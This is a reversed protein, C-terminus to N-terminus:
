DTQIHKEEKIIEQIRSLIELSESTAINKSSLKRILGVRLRQLYNKKIKNKDSLATKYFYDKSGNDLSVGSCNLVLRSLDEGCDADNLLAPISGSKKSFEIFKKFIKQTKEGLFMEENMDSVISDILDYDLNMLCYLFEEECFYSIGSSIFNKSSFNKPYSPSTKLLNLDISFIKSLESQYFDKVVSDKIKETKGFLERANKNKANLNESKKNMTKFLFLMMDQKNKLIKKFEEPNKLLLSDPDDGKPMFVVSPFFNSEISVDLARLSAKFGADDGDFIVVGEDTFRKLLAVQSTTFSTGMPSVCNKYGNAFMRMVDFYGEVIYVNKETRIVDKALNLNFLVDRKKFIKTEPSNIYKPLSDDISRGSFGIVKGNEGKIPILIRGSLKIKMLGDRPYFIGSDFLDNKTFGSFVSKIDIDESVFGVDFIDLIETDFGRQQLYELAFKHKGDYLKKKAVNMFVENVSLIEKKGKVEKQEFKVNYKECLYQVAQVFDFNNYKMVFTIPNGSAKCGFCHFLGKEESVSFSPTKESHFPCLGIFNRGRKKLEVYRSILEVINIKSNLEELVSDTVQM